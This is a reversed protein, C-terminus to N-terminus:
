LKSFAEHLLVLRTKVKFVWKPTIPVAHSPLPVLDWAGIRDLTALEESMAVQWELISSAEQYHSLEDVIANV